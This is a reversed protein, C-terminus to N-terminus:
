KEKKDAPFDHKRLNWEGNFRQGAFLPHIAKLDKYAEQKDIIEYVKKQYPKLLRHLHEKAEEVCKNGIFTNGYGILITDFKIQLLEELYQFNRENSDVKAPKLKTCIESFLNWIIIESYGMIGLNNLLHNTTTDFVQVNSSAPNMGVVLIKKGKIGNYSLRLEYRHKLDEDFVGTKELLGTQKIINNM